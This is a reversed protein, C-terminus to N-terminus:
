IGVISPISVAPDSSEFLDDLHINQILAPLEDFDNTMRPDDLQYIM